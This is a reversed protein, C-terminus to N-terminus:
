GRDLLRAAGTLVRFAARQLPLPPGALYMEHALGLRATVFLSPMGKANVRGERGCRFFEDFFEEIGAGPTFVLRVRAGEDGVPAWAHPAGPPVVVTKGPGRLAQEGRCTLLIQGGLIEFSEEQHRHIHAAPLHATPSLELEMEARAGGTQASTTLFTIREGTAPNEIVDGPQVM